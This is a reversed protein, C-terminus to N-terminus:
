AEKRKFKEGLFANSLIVIKVSLLGLATTLLNIYPAKASVMLVIAVILMRLMYRISVYMQAKSPPMTVSKELTLALLRFNLIAILSGFIIGLLNQQNFQKTLILIVIFAIDFILIGNTVYNVENSTKTNM